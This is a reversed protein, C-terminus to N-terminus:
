NADGAMSIDKVTLQKIPIPKDSVKIATVDGREKGVSEAENSIAAYFPTQHPEGGLTKYIVCGVIAPTYQTAGSQVKFRRTIFYPFPRGSDPFIIFPSDKWNVPKKCVENQLPQWDNNEYSTFEGEVKVFAPIKGVNKLLFSLNFEGVKPYFPELRNFDDHERLKIDDVVIWPRQETQMETLQAHFILYQLVGVGVMAITLLAIVWTARATSIAARDTPTRKEKEARRKEFYRKIYEIPRSLRFPKPSQPPQAASEQDDL